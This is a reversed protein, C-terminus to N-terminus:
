REGVIDIPLNPLDKVQLEVLREYRERIKQEYHELNWGRDGTKEAYRFDAIYNHLERRLRIQEVYQQMAIDTSCTQKYSNHSFLLHTHLNFERPSSYDCNPCKFKYVRKSQELKTM